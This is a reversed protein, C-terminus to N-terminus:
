LGVYQIERVVPKWYELNDYIAMRNSIEDRYSAMFTDKQKGRRYCDIDRYDFTLTILTIVLDLVLYIVTCLYRFKVLLFLATM